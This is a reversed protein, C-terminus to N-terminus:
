ARKRQRSRGMTGSRFSDPNFKDMLGWYWKKYEDYTITSDRNVWDESCLNWSEMIGAESYLGWHIIMGFKLDQWQDLRARVLTDTPWEYIRSQPHINQQASVSIICFVLLYFLLGAKFNGRM